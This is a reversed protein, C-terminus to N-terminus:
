SPGLLRDTNRLHGNPSSRSQSVKLMLRTKGAPKIVIYSEQRYSSLFVERQAKLTLSTHKGSGYGLRPDEPLGQGPWTFVLSLRTVRFDEIGSLHTSVLVFGFNLACCLKQLRYVFIVHRQALELSMLDKVNQLRFSKCRRILISDM